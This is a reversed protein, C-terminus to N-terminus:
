HIVPVSFREGIGVAAVGDLDAAHCLNSEDEASSSRNCACETIGCAFIDKFIFRFTHNRLLANCGFPPQFRGGNKKIAPIRAPNARGHRALWPSAPSLYSLYSSYSSYSQSNGSALAFDSKDSKDSEDAGNSM